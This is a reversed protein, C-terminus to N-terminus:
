STPHGAVIVYRIANVERASDILPTASGKRAITSPANPAWPGDRLVQKQEDQYWQGVMALTVDASGGALLLDYARTAVQHLSGRRTDAM